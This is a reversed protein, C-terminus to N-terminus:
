QILHMYYAAGEAPSGIFTPTAGAYIYDDFYEIVLDSLMFLNGIQSPIVIPLTNLWDNLSPMYLRLFNNLESKILLASLHGFACSDVTVNSSKVSDIQISVDMNNVLATFGFNTESLTLQTAMEQTGDALQVWFQAILSGEGSLIQTESSIGIDGVQTVQFHINIPLDPGYYAQIGPLFFNCDTTTM